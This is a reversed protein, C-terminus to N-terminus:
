TYLETTSLGNVNTACGDVGVVELVEEHVWVSVTRQVTVGM